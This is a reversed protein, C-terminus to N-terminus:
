LPCIYSIDHREQFLLIQLTINSPLRTNKSNRYPECAGEVQSNLDTLMSEGRELAVSVDCDGDKIEALTLDKVYGKGTTTRDVKDDHM